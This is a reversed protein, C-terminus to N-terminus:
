VGSHGAPRLPPSLGAPASPSRIMPLAEWAAGRSYLQGSPTEPQLTPMADFFSDERALADVVAFAPLAAVALDAPVVGLATFALPVLVARLAFAGGGGDLDLLAEVLLPVTFFTVVFFDVALFAVLLFTLLLCGAAVDALALAL